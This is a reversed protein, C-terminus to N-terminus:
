FLKWHFAYIASYIWVFCLLHSINWRQGSIRGILSARYFLYAPIFNGVLYISKGLSIHRKQLSNVDAFLIINASIFFYLFVLSDFLFKSYNYLENLQVRFSSDIWGLVMMQIFPFIALTVAFGDSLHSSPLPPPFNLKYAECLRQWQTDGEHWILSNSPIKNERVMNFFSHDVIPGLVKGDLEYYVYKPVTQVQETTDIIESM